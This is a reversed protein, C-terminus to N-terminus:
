LRRAFCVDGLVSNVELGLVTARERVQQERKQAAGDKGTLFCDLERRSIVARLALQRIDSSASM